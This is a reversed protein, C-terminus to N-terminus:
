KDNRVQRFARGYPDSSAVLYALDHPELVLAQRDISNLEM